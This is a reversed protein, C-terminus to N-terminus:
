ASQRMVKSGCALRVGRNRDRLHLSEYARPQNGESPAADSATQGASSLDIGAIARGIRPKGHDDILGLLEPDLADEAADSIARLHLFRAGRENAFRRVLESEMDVALCSTESFLRRKELATSVIGVAMHIRGLQAVAMQAPLAEGDIVVDGVRLQPSLAGALGALLIAQVDQIAPLQALSPLQSARVGVQALAIKDGTWFHLPAAVKHLHLGKSIAQSEPLVATLILMKLPPM